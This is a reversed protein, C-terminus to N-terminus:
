NTEIVIEGLRSNINQRKIFELHRRRRNMEKDFEDHLIRSHYTPIILESYFGDKIISIIEQDLIIFMDRSKIAKCEVYRKGTIPCM